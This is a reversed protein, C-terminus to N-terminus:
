VIEHEKKKTKNFTTMLSHPQASVRSTRQGFCFLIDRLTGFFLLRWNNLSPNLTLKIYLDSDIDMSVYLVFLM